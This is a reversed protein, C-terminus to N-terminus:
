RGLSPGRSPRAQKLAREAIERCSQALQNVARVIRDISRDAPRPDKSEREIDGARRGAKEASIAANERARDSLEGGQNLLVEPRPQGSRVTDLHRTHEQIDASDSLLGRDNSVPDLGRGRQICRSVSDREIDALTRGKQDAKPYRAELYARRKSIGASYRSRADRVRAQSNERYGREAAERERRLESGNRFSEAYIAGTLRLPKGGEPPTISISNKTTRTIDFGADSLAMIVESRNKPEIAILGETIAQAAEQRKKPLNQPSAMTRARAPDHPDSLKYQDNVITQYADVRDRDARDYYPQLRKGTSLEVNPVVFNLELRGKDRHEVWLIQYQDPQMGPFLTKEWTDMIQTKHEPPLDAESFNLSGSTYRQKFDLSDILDRTETPDGRLVLPAVERRNGAHDKDGTLYETPGRGGGSGRSNIKILM